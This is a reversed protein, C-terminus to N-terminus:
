PGAAPGAPTPFPIVAAPPPDAKRVFVKAFIAAPVFLCLLAILVYTRSQADPISWKTLDAVQRIFLNSVPPMAALEAEAKVKDAARQAQLAELDAIRALTMQASKIPDCAADRVLPSVDQTCDVSARLIKQRCTMREEFDAVNACMIKAEGDSMTNLHSGVAEDQARELALTAAKRSPMTDNTETIKQALDSIKLELAERKEVAVRVEDAATTQATYVAFLALAASGAMASSWRNGKAGRLAFFPRGDAIYLFVLLIFLISNCVAVIGGFHWDGMKLGPLVVTGAQWQFVLEGFCYMGLAFVALLVSGWDDLGDRWALRDLGDGYKKRELKAALRPDAAYKAVGELEAQTATSRPKNDM